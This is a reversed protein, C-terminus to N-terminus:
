LHHILNLIYFLKMIYYLFPKGQSPELTDESQLSTSYNVTVYDNTKAKGKYVASVNVIAQYKQFEVARGNVSISMIGQPHTVTVIGVIVVDAKQIASQIRSSTIPRMLEAKTIGLTMSSMSSSASHIPVKPLSAHWAAFVFASCLGLGGVFKLANSYKNM